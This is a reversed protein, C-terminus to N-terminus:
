FDETASPIEIPSDKYYIGEAKPVVDPIDIDIGDSQDYEVTRDAVWPDNARRFWIEGNAVRSEQRQWEVNGCLFTNFDPRNEGADILHKRQIEFATDSPM